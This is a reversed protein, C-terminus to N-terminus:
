GANIPRSKDPQDEGNNSDRNLPTWDAHLRRVALRVIGSMSQGERRSLQRLKARTGSDVSLSIRKFPTKSMCANTERM